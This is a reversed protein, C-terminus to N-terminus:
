AARANVSRITAKQKAFDIRGLQIPRFREVFVFEGRGLRRCLAVLEPASWEDALLAADKQSASFLYLRECQLRLTPSLQQPRHAIFHSVHGLHRATTTLWDNSPDNKDISSGSEDVFLAHSTARKVYRMFDDRRPTLFDAKWNPDRLPDLVATAYGRRRYGRALLRCLTTKGSLTMGVVLSHPM